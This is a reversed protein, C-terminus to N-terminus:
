ADLIGTSIATGILSSSTSSRWNTVGARAPHRTPSSPSGVACSRCRTCAARNTAGCTCRAAPQQAHPDPDDRDDVPALHLEDFPHGEGVLRTWARGARRPRVLRRRQVSRRLSRRSRRPGHLPEPLGVGVIPVDSGAASRSRSASVAHDAARRRARAGRRPVLQAPRLLRRADGRVPAPAFLSDVIGDFSRSTVRDGGARRAGVHDADDTTSAPSRPRCSRARCSRPAARRAPGSVLAAFRSRQTWSEVTGDVVKARCTDRHM